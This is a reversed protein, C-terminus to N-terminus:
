RNPSVIWFPKDKVQLSLDLVNLYGSAQYSSPASIFLPLWLGSWGLHGPPVEWCIDMDEWCRGAPSGRRSAPRGSSFSPLSRLQGCGTTVASAACRRELGKSVVTETFGFYIKGVLFNLCCPNRGCYAFPLCQVLCRM